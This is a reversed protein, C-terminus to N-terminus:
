IYIFLLCLLYTLNSISKLTLYTLKFKELYLLVSNSAGLHLPRELASQTFVFWWNVAKRPSTPAVGFTKNWAWAPSWCVAPPIPPESVDAGHGQHLLFYCKQSTESPPKGLPVGLWGNTGPMKPFWGWKNPGMVDWSEVFVLFTGM